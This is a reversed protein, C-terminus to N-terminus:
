VLQSASKERRYVRVKGKNLSSNSSYNSRTSICGSELSDICSKIIERSNKANEQIDRSMESLLPPRKIIIKPVSKSFLPNSAKDDYSCTKKHHSTNVAPMWSDILKLLQIIIKDLDKWEINKFNIADNFFQSFIRHDSFKDSYIQLIEKLNALRKDNADFFNQSKSRIMPSRSQKQMLVLNLRDIEQVLLQSKNIEEECIKKYEVSIRFLEEKKQQSKELEDKLKQIEEELYDIKLQDMEFRTSKVKKPASM